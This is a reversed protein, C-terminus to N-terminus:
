FMIYGEREHLFLYSVNVQCSRVRSSIRYAYIDVCVCVYMCVYMCVYIHIYTHTHTYLHTQAYLSTKDHEFSTVSYSGILNFCILCFWRSVILNMLSTPSVSNIPMQELRTEAYDMNWINGTTLNLCFCHSADSFEQGSAHLKINLGSQQHTKYWSDYICDPNYEVPHHQAM